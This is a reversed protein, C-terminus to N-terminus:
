VVVTILNCSRTTTTTFLHLAARGTPLKPPLAQQVPALASNRMPASGKLSSPISRQVGNININTTPQPVMTTGDAIQAPAKPRNISLGEAQWHNVVPAHNVIPAHNIIPAQNVIPVRSVVPAYNIVPVHHNAVPSGNSSPCGNVVRLQGNTIRGTNVPSGDPDQLGSTYIGYTPTPSQHGRHLQLLTHAAERAEREENNGIIGTNGFSSSAFQHPNIESKVSPPAQLAQANRVSVKTLSTGISSPNELEKIGQNALPKRIRGRVFTLDMQALSQMASDDSM